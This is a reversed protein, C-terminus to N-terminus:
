SVHVPRAYQYHQMLGRPPPPYVCARVGRSLDHITYFAHLAHLRSPRSDAGSLPVCPCGGFEGEEANPRSKRAPDVLAQPRSPPSGDLPPPNRPLLAPGVRPIPISISLARSFPPPWTAAGAVCQQLDDRATGYQVMPTVNRGSIFMLVLTSPESTVALHPYVPTNLEGCIPESQLLVEKFQIYKVTYQTRLNLLEFSVQWPHM